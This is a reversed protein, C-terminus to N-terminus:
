IVYVFTGCGPWIIVSEIIDKGSNHYKELEAIQKKGETTEEDFIIIDKKLKGKENNENSYVKYLLDGKNICDGNKLNNTEEIWGEYRPHYHKVFNENYEITGFTEINPTISQEKTTFTPANFNQIKLNVQNTHQKHDKNEQKKLVLDMGCIPCEGEEHSTIQPHMPCSFINEKTNGNDNNLVDQKKLILDMGCIPCEGEEHSTIQLHMPCSFISTNKQVHQHEHENAYNTFSLLALCFILIYKM